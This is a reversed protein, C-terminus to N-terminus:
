SSLCARGMKVVQVMAKISTSRGSSSFSAVVAAESDSLAVGVHAARLAACDNGGDGCMGVVFNKAQHANVVQVKQDPLMRGFVRIRLLLDALEGTAVLVSFAAGTVALEADM